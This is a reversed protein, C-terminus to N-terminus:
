TLLKRIKDCLNHGVSNDDTWLWNNWPLLFSLELLIICQSVDMVDLVDAELPFDKRPVMIDSNRLM